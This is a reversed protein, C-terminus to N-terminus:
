GGFASRFVYDLNSLDWGTVDKYPCKTPIKALYASPNHECYALYGVFNNDVVINSASMFSFQNIYEHVDKKHEASLNRVDFLYTILGM